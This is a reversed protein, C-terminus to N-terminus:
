DSVTGRWIPTATPGLVPNANTPDDPNAFQNIGMDGTVIYTGNLASVAWATGSSVGVLDDGGLPNEATATFTFLADGSVPTWTYGEPSTWIMPQSNDFEGAAVYGGAGATIGNMWYPVGLPDQPARTWNVGDPSVLVGATTAEPFDHMGVVVYGGEGYAADHFTFAGGFDESCWGGIPGFAEEDHALLTWNLGDPSHWIASGGCIYESSALVYGSPGFTLHSTWEFGLEGDLMWEAYPIVIPSWSSGDVSQFLVPLLSAPDEAVIIYGYQGWGVERPQHESLTGPDSPQAWTLADPSIWVGPSGGRTAGVAVYGPPGYALADVGGPHESLSWERGDASTAIANGAAAAVFQDPGVVVAGLGIPQEPFIARDFPELREWTLEVTTATPQESLTTTPADIVPPADNSFLSIMMFVLGILALVSVAATAAAWAGAPRFRRVRMQPLPRSRTEAERRVEEFTVPTM